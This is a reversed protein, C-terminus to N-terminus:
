PAEHERGTVFAATLGGDVPLDVGTIYAAEDGLLWTATGAIDSPLGLRGVPIHTLRRQLEGADTVLPRTLSTALLGPSIVNVRVNDRAHAVALERSLALVGGKASTYAPQSTASGVRAVISGINVIAGGRGHARMALIVARCALWVGILNVRLTEDWAGLSSSDVGRDEPAIVAACTVLGDVACLSEAVGLWATEDGVDMERRTGSSAHIAQTTTPSMRSLTSDIALVRGGLEAVRECVAGGVAGSAGTVLITKSNMSM